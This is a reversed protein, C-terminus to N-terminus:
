FFIEFLVTGVIFYFYGPGKVDNLRNQKLDVYGYVTESYAIM